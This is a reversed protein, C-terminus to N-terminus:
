VHSIKDDDEDDGVVITAAKKEVDKAHRACYLSSPIRRSKCQEGNMKKGQCRMDAKGVSVEVAALSDMGCTVRYTNIHSMIRERMNQLREYLGKSIKVCEDMDEMSAKLNALFKQIEVVMTDQKSRDQITVVGVLVQVAWCLVEKRISDDLKEFSLFMCPKGGKTKTIQFPSKSGIGSDLSLLLGVDVDCGDLDNYIKEVEVNSVVTAYKKVDIMIKVVKGIPGIVKLHFDGAHKVMTMNFVESYMYRPLVHTQIMELVTAEGIKGLAHSSKTASAEKIKTLEETLRSVEASLYSHAEELITYQKSVGSLESLQTKLEMIEKEKMLQSEIMKKESILLEERKILEVERLRLVMTEEVRRAIEADMGGQLEAIRNQAADGVALRGKLSELMAMGGEKRWLEERETDDRAAEWKSFLQEKAASYCQAGLNAIAVAEDHSVTGYIEDLEELDLSM